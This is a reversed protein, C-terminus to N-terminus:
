AAMGGTLERNRKSQESKISKWEVFLTALVAACALGVTVRFADKIGAM